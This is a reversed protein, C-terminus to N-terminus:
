KHFWSDVFGGPVVSTPKAKVTGSSTVMTIRDIGPTSATPTAGNVTANTFSVSGFDALPLVGLLSSPAEAIVEASGLAAGTNQPDVTETWGRTHNTLTLQFVGGGVSVVSASMRDNPAVTDPYTVPAKPYMEYWGSYVPTGSRCDAETGTQEVTSTTDGDIGVWFSSFGRPTQQCDVAPQVWDASVSRYPGHGALAFGSWNTSQGHRLLLDPVNQAGAVATAPATLAVLGAVAVTRIFRIM